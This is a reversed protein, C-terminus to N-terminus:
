QKINEIAIIVESTLEGLKIKIKDLYDEGLYKKLKKIEAITNNLDKETRTIKLNAIKRLTYISLTKYELIDELLIRLFPLHKVLEDSCNNLIYKLNNTAKREISQESTVSHFPEKYHKIEEYNDWFNNSLTLIKENISCEIHKYADEFILDEVKNNEEIIGRIFFGLGKRIFVILNNQDHKKASKVRSSLKSVRTIVEPYKEKMEYYIQRIKTHFSEIEIKEPNQMIKNFLKSATPTEDPDFIKVDEGLTNHILFMKESAIQRSRVIDAGQETPFFNYIYLNDFTKKGIRNIRGLRQIVRTPNWPIDYNIVAGARNLNFGESIKDTAILIDYDDRQTDYMADFNTLIASVKSQPTDGKITLIRDPFEDKIKSELHEATDIYETFVVVKRKYDKSKEKETLIKKIKVALEKSKPDNEVLKLKDLEKMIKLFLNKDQEIDDLFEQKEKFKNIEYIKNTKPYNGEELKEAFKVLEKEIEELDSEYIRELLKRDLIYKKTNDIFKQVKVTINYFNNLSQNFAGFSSEFRKVLLRRMFDYLNKQIIKERNEEMKSTANDNNDLDDESKYGKEYKFPRYIAGKFKGYEGFYENIVRDYFESQEKTLKFFMEDPDNVEPLDYVEKSYEPDKKLDIRNRRIVVPEIVSRIRESLYKARTKVKDLKIINSDFLSKYYIQAKKQKEEDPSNYNKNIFSLKEFTKKYNRFRLDLNDDLTIKSKGPIIFLKLLSFIDGPSNNFPTATLLIVIRNRCIEDLIEYDETDRNRFNHAEDVIVVEFDDNKKVLDLVDELKGSSRIEWDYLKFDEKYKHWGSNKKNPDGILGPRCIIVGRKELSKAVMSSVVSKGLGVVDSILVGGYNEIVSLAQSVADIQYKYPKYGKEIMLDVLTPKVQKKAQSDLYTKLVLIFAEFPSVEAILTKTEILEILRNKFEEYETIKIAPENWLNDFFEEAEKTGYDSIEVNFEEQTTLGSKTLNSSGTIFITKKVESIPEKMKFIYLKAHNPRCTKRIILKNEKILKIFYKVQEYFERTDFDDSNISKTLSTFFKEVKEKDSFNESNEGHEILRYLYKDVDLGVLVKIEIDDRNKISDYLERIGSFYFFGVLFKLEKSNNILEILRKKLKKTEENTIFTLDTNKSPLTTM